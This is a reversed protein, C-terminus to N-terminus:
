HGFYVSSLETELSSNKQTLAEITKTQGNITAMYMREIGESEALKRKLESVTEGLAMMVNQAEVLMHAISDFGYLAPNPLDEDSLLEDVDVTIAAIYEDLITQSM